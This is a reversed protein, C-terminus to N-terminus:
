RAIRSRRVGPRSAGPSSRPRIALGPGDFLSALAGVRDKTVCLAPDVMGGRLRLVAGFERNGLQAVFINGFAAVM